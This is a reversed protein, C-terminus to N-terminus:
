VPKPGSAGASIDSRGGTREMLTDPGKKEECWLCAALMDLPKLWIDANNTFTFVPNFNMM